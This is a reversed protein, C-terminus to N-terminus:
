MKVELFFALQGLLFNDMNQITFEGNKVFTRQKTNRQKTIKSNQQKATKHESNQQKDNQIWETRKSNLISNLNVQWPIPKVVRKGGVIKDKHM